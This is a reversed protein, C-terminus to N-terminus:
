PAPSYGGVFGVSLPKIQQQLSIDLLPSQPIHYKVAREARKVEASQEGVQVGSVEDLAFM